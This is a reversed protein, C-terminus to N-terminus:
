WGLKPSNSESIRFGYQVQSQRSEMRESNRHSVAEVKEEDEIQGHLKSAIVFPAQAEVGQTLVQQSM